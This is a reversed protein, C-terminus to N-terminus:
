PSLLEKQQPHNGLWDVIGTAIDYIAGVVELTRQRVRRRTMSSEKLLDEISQWVNAEVAAPVLADGYLNPHARRARNVAPRIRDALSRLNGGLEEEITVATVAGCHTHGLVVVLPVELGEVAYEISAVEDTGCVNGAVRVVFLDGIGQDFLLEVPVRSDSCAVVAAFPHQGREATEAMRRADARPHISGEACFRASGERLCELAEEPRM